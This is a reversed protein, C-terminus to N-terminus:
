PGARAPSRWGRRGRHGPPRRRRPPSPRLRGPSSRPASTRAGGLDDGAEGPRDQRHGALLDLDGLVGHPVSPCGPPGCRASGVRRHATGAGPAPTSSRRRAPPEPAAVTARGAEQRRRRLARGRRHGGAPAPRSSRRPAAGRPRAVTPLIPMTV